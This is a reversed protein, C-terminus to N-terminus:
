IYSRADDILSDTVKKLKDITDVNKDVPSTVPESDSTAVRIEDNEDSYTVRWTEGYESMSMQLAQQIFGESLNIGEDNNRNEATIGFREVLMERLRGDLESYNPDPGPNTPRVEAEFRRVTHEAVIAELDAESIIYDIEISLNGRMINKFGAQFANVFNRKRVRYTSSYILFRNETDILFVSYDANQVEEDTERFGAEESHETLTEPYTKGFEGYLIEESPNSDTLGFLWDGDNADEVKGDHNIFDELVNKERENQSLTTDYQDEFPLTGEIEYKTLYFRTEPM